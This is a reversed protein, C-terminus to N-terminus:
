WKGGAPCTQPILNVCQKGSRAVVSGTDGSTGDPAADPARRRGSRREADLAPAGRGDTRALPTRQGTRRLPSRQRTSPRWTPVAVDAQARRLGTQRARLGTTADVAATDERSAGCAIAVLTSAVAAWRLGYAPRRRLRSARLLGMSRLVAPGCARLSRETVQTQCEGQNRSDCSQVPPVLVGSRRAFSRGADQELEDASRRLAGAVSSRMSSFLSAAQMGINAALATNPTM